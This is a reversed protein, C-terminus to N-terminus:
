PKPEWLISCLGRGVSAKGGLQASKIERLMTVHDAAGKEAGRVRGKESIVTAYLVAEAPLAEEYWLGGDHVTKTDDNLKIRAVIETCQTVLISFWGDSVVVLRPGLLPQLLTPLCRAKLENAWSLLEPKVVADLDSDDLFVKGNVVIAQDSCVAREGASALAQLVALEKSSDLGLATRDNAYRRIVYPCTVWGFLQRVSRVPFLLLRADGFTVAGAGATPDKERGFASDVTGKHAGNECEARFVGKVGSGPVVPLNTGRERQIPLDIVDLSQGNGVHLPSAAHLYAILNVNM